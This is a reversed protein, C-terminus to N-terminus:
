SGMRSMILMELESSEGRKKSSYYTYGIEENM